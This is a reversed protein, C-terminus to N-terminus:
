LKDNLNTYWRNCQSLNKQWSFTFLAFFYKWLEGVKVGEVKKMKITSCIGFVYISVIWIHKYFHRGLYIKLSQTSNSNKEILIKMVLQLRKATFHVACLKTFMMFSFRPFKKKKKTFVSILSSSFDDFQSWWSEVNINM